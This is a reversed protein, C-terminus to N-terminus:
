DLEKLALDKKKQKKKTKYSHIAPLVRQAGAVPFSLAQQLKCLPTGSARGVSTVRAAVATPHIGAHAGSHAARGPMRQLQFGTAASLAIRHVCFDM